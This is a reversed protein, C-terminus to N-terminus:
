TVSAHINGEPLANSPRSVTGTGTGTGETMEISQFQGSPADPIMWPSPSSGTGYHAGTKDGSRPSQSVSAVRAPHHM